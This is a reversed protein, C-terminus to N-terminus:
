AAATQPGIPLVLAVRSNRGIQLSNLQGISTEVLKRLQEASIGLHGMIAGAVLSAFAIKAITYLFRLLTRAEDGLRYPVSESARLM